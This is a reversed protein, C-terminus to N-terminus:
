QTYLYTYMDIDTYRYTQKYIMKALVKGSSNYKNISPM